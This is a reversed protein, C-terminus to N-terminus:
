AAEGEEAAAGDPGDAAVVVDFLGEAMRTASEVLLEHVQERTLRGHDLWQVTAAEALGGYARMMALREPAVDEVPGLGLIAVMRRAADERAEEFVAAIEPDGLGGQSRVSDLWTGRNRSTMELWRDIAQSVRARTGEGAVYEPVPLPPVRVMERVVEVYLDRKTGFYHNILGRAVGAEAAIEDLSVAGYHSESFLKRAADLLQRRREDPELRSGRASGNESGVRDSAPSAPTSAM